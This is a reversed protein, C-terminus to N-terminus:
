DRKASKTAVFLISSSEISNVPYLISKTDYIKCTGDMYPEMMTEDSYRQRLTVKHCVPCSLLEYNYNFSFDEYELDKTGWSCKGQLQMLTENGCHFCKIIESKDTDFKKM